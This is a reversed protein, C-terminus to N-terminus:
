SRLQGIFVGPNVAATASTFADFEYLDFAGRNRTSCAM